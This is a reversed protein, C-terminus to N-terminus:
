ADPARRTVPISASLITGSGPASTIELTGGVLALRERMGVLGFGAESSQAAPDYGDGDDSVRAEVRGPRDVVTVVVGTAGAHKVVNTLAEQVVRYITTELEPAHRQASRGTEFDLDCRLDVSLGSVAEVRDRLDGLAAATGFQDLAPPRLDSILARLSDVGDGLMEIVQGVTRRLEAVDDGSQAASLLLRLTALDQLTQDHLERAWRRRESESATISRRLSEASASRATAMATAAFAAFAEFVREEDDDFPADGDVRDLAVLVGVTRNHFRMPTVMGHTAGLVRRAYTTEPLQVFRQSRSSEVVGAAVSEALPLRTGALGDIGEGAAAVVVIEDGEVIALEASRAGILSRSRKVILEFVRELETMGALGQSIELATELSRGARDLQVEVLELRTATRAHEIARGAVAALAVIVEEDVESFSGGAKETLYLNGWPEGAVVIPVGLFSRMPPHGSPFGYSQPHMGVDALRLPQGDEILVGLVGRGRPLSGISARADDDVGLTIFRELERRGTDLVGLAAYRAGSLEHATELLRRLLEDLDREDSLAQSAMLVQSFRDADVRPRYRGARITWFTAAVPSATM